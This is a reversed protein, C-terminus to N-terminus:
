IYWFVLMLGLVFLVTAFIATSDSTPSPTHYPRQYYPTVPPAPYDYRHPAYYNPSQPFYPPRNRNTALLFLCLFSSVILIIELM